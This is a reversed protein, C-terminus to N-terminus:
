RDEGILDLASRLAAVAASPHACIGRGDVQAMLGEIEARRSAGGGAASIAGAVAPLGRWCPGCQGATGEALERAVGALADWARLDEPIWVFAGAGWRGGLEALADRTLGTGATLGDWPVWRGHWGGTILVEPAGVLGGAAAALDALTATDPLEVVGPDRVAGSASALASGGSVGRAALAMRAFTEANSLLVHSRRRAVGSRISPPRGLDAPLAPGGTIARIVATAEGAVFTAPGVSLEIPLADQRAALAIALSTALDPRDASIRLIIRPAGLARAATVAGDIVLHPVHGLLVGDKGSATEGEAGNIIVHSVRAGVLSALKRDTPFAAGGAGVVEMAAVRAILEDIAPSPAAGWRGVHEVLNVPRGPEVGALLLAGPALLERPLRGPLRGALALGPLGPARRSGAGPLSWAGAPSPQGTLYETM